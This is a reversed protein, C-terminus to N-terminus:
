RSYDSLELRAGNIQMWRLNLSLGTFHQNHVQYCLYSQVAPKFNVINCHARSKQHSPVCFFFHKLTWSVVVNCHILKGFSFKVAVHVWKM